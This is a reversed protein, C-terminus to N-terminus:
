FCTHWAQAVFQQVQIHDQQIHILGKQMLLALNEQSNFILQPAFKAIQSILWATVVRVRSSASSDWMQFITQYAPELEQTLAQASPGDM